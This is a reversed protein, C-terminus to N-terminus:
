FIDTDEDEYFRDYFGENIHENPYFRTDSLDRDTMGCVVTEWNWEYETQEETEEERIEYEESYDEYERINM